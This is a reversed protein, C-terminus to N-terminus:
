CGTHTTYMGRFNHLAAGRTSRVSETLQGKSLVDCFTMGAHMSGGFTRRHTAHHPASASAQV